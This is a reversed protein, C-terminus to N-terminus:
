QQVQWICFLAGVGIGVMDYLCGLQYLETPDDPLFQYDNGFCTYGFVTQYVIAYEDRYVVVL